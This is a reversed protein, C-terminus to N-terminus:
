HDVKAKKCELFHNFINFFMVINSYWSSQLFMELLQILSGGDEDESMAAILNIDLAHLNSEAMLIALGQGNILKTLKIDMDYELMSAIWKGRRGEPNTQILVDKVAANHVYAKTHSHLIYVRFDKLAKTLVLDQKEIINYWM